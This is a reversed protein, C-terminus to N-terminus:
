SGGNVLAVPRGRAPAWQTRGSSTTCTAKMSHVCCPLSRCGRKTPSRCSLTARSTVLSLAHDRMRLLHQERGIADGLALERVVVLVHGRHHQRMQAAPRHGHLTIRRADVLLAEHLLVDGLPKRLPERTYLHELLVAPEMVRQDVILAGQEPEGILIADRGV